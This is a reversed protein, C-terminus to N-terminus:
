KRFDSMRVSTWDCQGIKQNQLYWIKNKSPKILGTEEKQDIQIAAKTM